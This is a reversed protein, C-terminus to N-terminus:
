QLIRHHCRATISHDPTEVVQARVPASCLGCRGIMTPEDDRIPRVFLDSTGDMLKGWQKVYEHTMGQTGILQEHGNACRLKLSIM